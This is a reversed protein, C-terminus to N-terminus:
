LSSRRLSRLSFIEFGAIGEKEDPDVLRMITVAVISWGANSGAKAKRIVRACLQSAYSSAASCPLTHQIVEWGGGSQVVKYLPSRGSNRIM